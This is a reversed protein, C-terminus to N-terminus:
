PRRALRLTAPLDRYLMAFGCLVQGIERLRGQAALHALRAIPEVLLTAVLHVWAQMQSFHKFAYLVRSRTAHFLRAALAQQSVGGGKHYSAPTALFMCYQGRQRYRLSLDLDELYVFFREDFGGMAHFEAARVMYFAGIVHDVARDTDHRWDRMSGDPFRASLASLGSVKFLFNKLTPFRHCSRSVAGNDGTLAVSCAGIAPDAQLAGACANISSVSVRSDPNLFLLLAGRAIRAGQNCAAGFGRNEKNRIVVVAADPPVFSLSDDTSANDVVIVQCSPAGVARRAEQCSTLCQSLLAGANWNVIVVSVDVPPEM